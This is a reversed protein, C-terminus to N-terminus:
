MFATCLHTGETRETAPLKRQPLKRMAKAGFQLDTRGAGKHHTSGYRGGKRQAYFYGGTKRRCSGLTNMQQPTAGRM